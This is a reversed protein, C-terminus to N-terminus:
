IIHLVCVRAEGSMGALHDAVYYAFYAAVFTLMVQLPILPLLASPPPSACLCLTHAAHPVPCSLAHAVHPVPFSLAHAVHPVPCSLAHAAHPSAFPLARCSSCSFFAPCPMLQMLPPLPLPLPVAHSSLSPCPCPMVQFPPAPARCSKLPLPLPARCSKLPPTLCPLPLCLSSLVLMSPPCPMSPCDHCLPAPTAHM